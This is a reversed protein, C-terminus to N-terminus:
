NIERVHRQNHRVKDNLVGCLVIFYQTVKGFEKFNLRLPAVGNEV